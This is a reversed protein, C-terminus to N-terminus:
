RGFKSPTIEMNKIADLAIELIHQEFHTGEKFEICRFILKGHEIKIITVNTFVQHQKWQIGDFKGMELEIKMAKDFNEMQEDNKGM